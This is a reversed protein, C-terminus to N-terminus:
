VAIKSCVGCTTQGQSQHLMPNPCVRAKGQVMDAHLEQRYKKIARLLSMPMKTHPSWLGILREADADFHLFGKGRLYECAQDISMVRTYFDDTKRTAIM